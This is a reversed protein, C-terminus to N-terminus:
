HSVHQPGTGTHWRAQRDCSPTWDFHSFIDDHLLVSCLLGPVKTKQCQLNQNFEKPLMLYM